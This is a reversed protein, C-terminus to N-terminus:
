LRRKRSRGRACAVLTRAEIGLSRLHEAADHSRVGGRACVTVVETTGALQSVEGNLLRDLPGNVSGAIHEAAFEATLRVDVVTVAGNSQLAAFEALPIPTIVTQRKGENARAGSNEWNAENSPGGV